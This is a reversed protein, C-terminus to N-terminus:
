LVTGLVHTGIADIQTLAINQFTLAVVEGGTGSGTGM